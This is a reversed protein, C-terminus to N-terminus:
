TNPEKAHGAVAIRGRSRTAPSRLGPGNTQPYTMHEPSDQQITGAQRPGGLEALTSPGWHFFLLPGSLVSTPDQSCDSNQWPLSRM